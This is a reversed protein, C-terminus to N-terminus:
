KLDNGSLGGAGGGPMMGPMQLTTGGGGGTFSKIVNMIAAMGTEGDGHSGGDDVSPDLGGPSKIVTYTTLEFRSIEIGWEQVAKSM